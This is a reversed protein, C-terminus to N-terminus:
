EEIFVYKEDSSFEAAFSHKGAHYSRLDDLSNLRKEILARAMLGRMRKAVVGTVAYKSDKRRAFVIELTPVSLQECDIVQAYEASALNLHYRAQAQQIMKDLQKTVMKSWFGYLNQGLIASTNTSMELRYAQIADLPRLLGYLGSLLGLCEQSHTLEKPSLSAPSLAKYADGAFYLLAAATPSHQSEAMAHFRTVNLQAIKESIRMLEMLANRDCRSMQQAIVAAEAAFAPATTPHKDLKDPDNFRKAPSLTAYAFM